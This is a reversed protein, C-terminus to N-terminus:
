QVKGRLRGRVDELMQAVVTLPVRENALAKEYEQYLDPRRELVKEASRVKIELQNLSNQITSFAMDLLKRDENDMSQEGSERM